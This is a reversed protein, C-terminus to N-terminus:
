KTRKSTQLYRKLEQYYNERSGFLLIIVLDGNQDKELRYTLEDNIGQNFLDLSFYGTLDYKKAEGITPDTRIADIANKIQRYFHKDKKRIKKIRRGTKPEIQVNLM